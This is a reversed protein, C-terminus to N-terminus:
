QINVGTMARTIVPTFIWYLLDTRLVRTSRRPTPVAAPSWHELAGFVVSLIAFGVAVGVVSRIM